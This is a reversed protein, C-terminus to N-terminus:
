LSLAAELFVVSVPIGISRALWQEYYAIPGGQGLAFVTRIRVGEHVVLDHWKKTNSCPAQNVPDRGGFPRDDSYDNHWHVAEVFDPVPGGKYRDIQIMYVTVHPVEDLLMQFALGIDPSSPRPADGFYLLAANPMSMACALMKVEKLLAEKDKFGLRSGNGIMMFLPRDRLEAALETWSLERPTKAEM